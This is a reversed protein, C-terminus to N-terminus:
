FKEKLLTSIIAIKNKFYAEKKENFRQMYGYKILASLQGNTTAYLTSNWGEQDPYVKAPKGTNPEVADQRQCGVLFLFISLLFVSYPRKYKM